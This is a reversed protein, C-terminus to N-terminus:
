RGKWHYFAPPRCVELTNGYVDQFISAQSDVKDQLTQIALGVPPENRWDAPLLDFNLVIGGVCLPVHM